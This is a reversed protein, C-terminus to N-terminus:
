AMNDLMADQANGALTTGNYDSVMTEMQAVFQNLEDASVEGDGDSDLGAVLSALPDAEQEAISTAAEDSGAVVTGTDSAHETSAEAVSTANTDSTASSTTAGDGEVFSSTVTSDVGSVATTGGMGAVPTAVPAPMPAPMGYGYMGGMPSGYTGMGMGMAQMSQFEGRSLFGDMNADAMDFPSAGHGCHGCAARTQLFSQTNDQSPFFGGVLQGLESGNLEGDADGDAASFMAAGEASLDMDMKESMKDLALQFEEQGVGGSGDVDMKSVLKEQIKSVLMGMLSTNLQSGAAATSETTSM